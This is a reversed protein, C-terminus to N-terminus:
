LEGSSTKIPKAEAARHFNRGFSMSSLPDVMVSFTNHYIRSSLGYVCQLGLWKQRHPTVADLLIPCQDQRHREHLATNSWEPLNINQSSLTIELASGESYPQIKSTASQDHKLARAAVDLGVKISKLHPLWGQVGVLANFDPLEFICQAWAPYSVVWLLICHALLASSTEAEAIVCLLWCLKRTKIKQM